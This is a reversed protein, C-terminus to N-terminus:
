LEKTVVYSVALYCFTISIFDCLISDLHVSCLFGLLSIYNMNLVTYTAFYVYSGNCHINM